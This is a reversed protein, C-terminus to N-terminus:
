PRGRAELLHLDHAQAAAKTMGSLEPLLRAEAPQSADILIWRVNWRDVIERRTREDAEPAFFTAADSQADSHDVLADPQAPALIKGGYAPVPWGTKPRALVVDGEGIRGALLRHRHDIPALRPDNALPPPLLAQPVTRAFGPAMNLMALGVLVVLAARALLGRAGPAAVLRRLESGRGTIWDALAVHLLFALPSMVRGLSWRGLLFGAGYIAALALVSVALPDRRDRRLRALAAGVGLVLPFTRALVHEYLVRNSSDFLHSAQIVGFFPYYPWALAALLGTIAMGGAGTWAPGRGVHRLLLAGTGAALLMAAVPHSLVVLPALLLSPALWGPGGSGIWRGYAALALLAAGLGFASPYPLS